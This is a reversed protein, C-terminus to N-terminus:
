ITSIKPSWINKKITVPHLWMQHVYAICPFPLGLHSTSWNNVDFNCDHLVFKWATLTSFLFLCTIELRKIKLERSILIEAKIKKTTRFHFLLWLTILTHFPKLLWKILIHSSYFYRNTPKVFCKLSIKSGKM